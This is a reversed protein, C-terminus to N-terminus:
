KMSKFFCTQSKVKVNRIYNCTHTLVKSRCIIMRLQHKPDLGVLQSPIKLPGCLMGTHWVKFQSM